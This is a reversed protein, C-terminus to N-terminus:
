MLPSSKVFWITREIFSPVTSSKLIFYRLTSRNRTSSIWNMAPLREVCSSNKWVKLLM